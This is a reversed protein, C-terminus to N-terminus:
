PRRLVAESNNADLLLSQGGPAAVYGLPHVLGDTSPTSTGVVNGALDLNYLTPPSWFGLHGPGGDDIFQLAGTPAPLAFSGDLNGDRSILWAKDPVKRLGVVFQKTSPVYALAAVRRTPLGAVNSFVIEGLSAGSRAVIDIGFPPALRGLCFADEDPLRAIGHRPGDLTMFVDAADRSMPVSAVADTLDRRMGVLAFTGTPPDWVGDFPRSLGVGIEVARDATPMRSLDSGLGFLRGAGYSAVMFRGNGLRAIGELMPLDPSTFPGDLVGGDLGVRWLSADECTIVFSNPPDFALGLVYTEPGDLPAGLHIEREVVGDLSLIEIQACDGEPRAVFIARAIRDPASGKGPILTMGEVSVIWTPDFGPLFTIPRPPVPTGDEDTVWLSEAQAQLAFNFRRESRVHVLGSAFATPNLPEIGFLRKPAGHAPHIPVALVDYGDILAIEGRHRGATILTISETNNGLRNLAFPAVVDEEESRPGRDRRVDKEV